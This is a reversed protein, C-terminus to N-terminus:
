NTPLYSGTLFINTIKHHLKVYDSSIIINYAKINPILMFNDIAFDNSLLLNNNIDIILFGDDYTYLKKGKINPILTFKDFSCKLNGGKLYINDQIDILILIGNYLQISKFKRELESFKLFLEGSTSDNYYLDNNIDIYYFIGNFDYAMSIVKVYINTLTDYYNNSSNFDYYDDYDEDDYDEDDSQNNEYTSIYGQIWLNNEEDIIYLSSDGNSLFEKVKVNSIDNDYTINNENFNNYKQRRFIDNITISLLSHKEFSLYKAKYNTYELNFDNNMYSNSQYFIKGVNYNNDIFYLGKYNFSNTYNGARYYNDTESFLCKVNGDPDLFSSKKYYTYDNLYIDKVPINTLKELTFDNLNLSYIKNYHFYIYKWSIDKNDYDIPGNEYIFKRFWFLDNNYLRNYLDKITLSLNFIDKNTLYTTIKFLMDNDLLIISTM